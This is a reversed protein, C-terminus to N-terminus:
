RLWMKKCLYFTYAHALIAGLFFSFLAILTIDTDTM